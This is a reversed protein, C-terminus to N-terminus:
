CHQSSEDSGSRNMEVKNKFYQVTNASSTIKDYDEDLTLTMFVPISSLVSEMQARYQKQQPSRVERPGMDQDQPQM